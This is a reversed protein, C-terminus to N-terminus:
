AAILNVPADTYEINMSPTSQNSEPRPRNCNQAGVFPTEPMEIITCAKQAAPASRFSAGASSHISSYPGIGKVETCYIIGSSIPPLINFVRNKKAM